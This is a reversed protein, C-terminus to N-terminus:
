LVRGGGLRPPFTKLHGRQLTRIVTKTFSNV